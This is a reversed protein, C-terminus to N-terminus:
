RPFGSQAFQCVSFYDSALFFILVFRFVARNRLIELCYFAYIGEFIKRRLTFLKKEFSSRKELLIKWNVLSKEIISNLFMFQPAFATTCTFYALSVTFSSLGHEHVPKFQMAELSNSSCWNQLQTCDYPPHPEIARILTEKSHKLIIPFNGM